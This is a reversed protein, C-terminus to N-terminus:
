SPRDGTKGTLFLLFVVRVNIQNEIPHLENLNREMPHLANLNREFLHDVVRRDRPGVDDLVCVCVCVCAVDSKSSHRRNGHPPPRSGLLHVHGDQMVRHRRRHHPQSLRIVVWEGHIGDSAVISDVDRHRRPFSLSVIPVLAYACSRTLESLM